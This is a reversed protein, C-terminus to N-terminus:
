IPSHTLYLHVSKVPLSLDSTEIVPFLFTSVGLIHENCRFPEIYLVAGCSADASAFELETFGHSKSTGSARAGHRTHRVVALSRQVARGVRRRAATHQRAPLWCRPHPLSGRDLLHGRHLRGGARPLVRAHDPRSTCTVVHTHPASTCKILLLKPTQRHNTHAQPPCVHSYYALGSRPSTSLHPSLARCELWGIRLFFPIM